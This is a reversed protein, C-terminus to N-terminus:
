QLQSQPNPIPSHITARAPPSDIKPISNQKPKTRGWRGEAGEGTFPPLPSAPRAGSQKARSRPDRLAAAAPPRIARLPARVACPHALASPPLFGSDAMSARSNKTLVRVHQRLVGGSRRSGAAGDGARLKPHRKEQNSRKPCAFLLSEAAASASSVTRDVRRNRPFGLAAALVPDRSEGPHRHPSFAASASSVRRRAGSNRSCGLAVALVPDRHFSVGASALGNAGRPGRPLLTV